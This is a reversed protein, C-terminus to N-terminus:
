YTDKVKKMGFRGVVVSALRREQIPGELDVVEDVALRVLNPNYGPGPGLADAGGLEPLSRGDVFESWSDSRLLISDGDLQDSGKPNGQVLDGELGSELNPAAPFPEVDLQNCAQEFSISIKDLVSKPESLLDPLWVSVAEACGVERLDEGRPVEGEFNFYQLFLGPGNLTVALPWHTQGPRRIAIDIGSRSISSDDRVEYGDERLLRALNQRQRERALENRVSAVVLDPDNISTKLWIRGIRRWGILRLVSNPLIERDYATGRAAWEEGDLLLALFQEEGADDSVALDIRFRSLGVNERVHIGEARLREALNRRFRDINTADRASLAAGNSLAADRCEKLFEVTAPVGRNTVNGVEVHNPDFSCFVILDKKARTIAVNLRREGGKNTLPGWTPSVKRRMDDQYSYSVSLIITDREDGQVKELPVVFLRESKRPHNLANRVAQDSSALEELLDLICAAQPENFTVVGISKSAHEASNLRRQIEAVVAAAEAPNTGRAEGKRLFQGNHVDIWHIPTSRDTNPAPFTVLRGDYFNRNSFAILGEHQSRFHCKLMLNPIGSDNCEVLISELDQLVEEDYEADTETSVQRQGIRKSPPMQQSDGVVIVSRARGMAPIAAAVRIQSAEDFVVLDFFQSEAPLLRSVAEPSMLFCPTLRTIMEGHRQILKPVSVRRVKRGLEKVLEGIAGTKIGPRFPRSESLQHPIV